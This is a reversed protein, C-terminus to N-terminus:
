TGNFQKKQAEKFNNKPKWGLQTKALTSDISYRFDHGPRDEVSKILKASSCNLEMIQDVIHCVELIFEKNTKKEEELVFSKVM